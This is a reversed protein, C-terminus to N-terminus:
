NIRSNLPLWRLTFSPGYCSNADLLWSREILMGSVELIFRDQNLFIMWVRANSQASRSFLTQFLVFCNDGIIVKSEHKQGHHNKCGQQWQKKAANSMCTCLSLCFPSYLAYVGAHCVKFINGPCNSVQIKGRLMCLMKSIQWVHLWYKNHLQCQHLHKVFILQTLRGLVTM